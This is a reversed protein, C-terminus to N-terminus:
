LVVCRGSVILVLGLGAVAVLTVAVPAFLLSRRWRRFAVEVVWGSFGCLVRSFFSVLWAGWRCSCSLCFGASRLPRVLARFALLVAFSVLVASLPASFTGRVPILVPRFAMRRATIIHHGARDCAADQRSLAIM